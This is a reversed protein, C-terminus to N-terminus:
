FSKTLGGDVSLQVGTIYRGKDSCLFYVTEAIEEVTAFRQIPISKESEKLVEEYARNESQAKNKM